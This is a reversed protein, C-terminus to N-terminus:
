FWRGVAMRAQPVVRGAVDYDWGQDDCNAACQLRTTGSLGYGIGAAILVSVGAPTTHQYGIEGSLWYGVYTRKPDSQSDTSISPGVGLVLRDTASGVSLKPVISGQYGSLGVGGGIEVEVLPIPVYTYSVGLAGIPSGLGFSGQVLNKKATQAAVLHTNEQASAVGSSLLLAVSLISWSRRMHRPLAVSM